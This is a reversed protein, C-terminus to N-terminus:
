SCIYIGITSAPLVIAPGINDDEDPNKNTSFLEFEYETDNNLGNVGETLLQGEDPIDSKWVVFNGHGKVRYRLTFTQKSGGDDGATWSVNVSFSTAAEVVFDRPSHPRSQKRLIIGFERTYETDFISSTVICSYNGFDGDTVMTITIIRGGESVSINSRIPQGDMEWEIHGEPKVCVDCVLSANGGVSAGVRPNSEGAWHAPDAPSM